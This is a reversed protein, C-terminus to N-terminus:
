SLETVIDNEAFQVVDGTFRPYPTVCDAPGHQLPEFLHEFPHSHLHESIVTEVPVRNTPEQTPEAEERLILQELPLKGAIVTLLSVVPIVTDYLLPLPSMVHVLAVQLATDAVILILTFPTNQLDKLHTPPAFVYVIVWSPFPAKKPPVTVKVAEYFPLHYLYTIYFATLLPQMKRNKNINIFLPLSIATPVFM